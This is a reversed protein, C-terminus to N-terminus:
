IKVWQRSEASEEVAEMVRQNRMGDEFTPQVSKGDVVANVFDALTHVFTHEYGLIHGPPWWQGVFPHDGGPQTVLIDSFGQRDSAVTNDFWKLRNMDEFDFYLSGKSGNIEIVISNKRGLAFRTAELNAVAGNKFKGIFLAADDVTVEGMTKGGAGGLGDGKASSDEIPRQKIFTNMLGCVEDFEGILYRGLDIIHANIDGHAGSGSIGKQLRWVLPFEPDVIWDQAYRARYHFIDGLAGEEIMKRAHAIAPIRRYNHCVMHVVGAENAADVMEKCQAVTMGLPKECLVHKGAKAAAISIEAHSDNPTNIDVIDIEPNNIVEEWSTSINNWGLEKASAELAEKNRGCITHMELDAKLPFFHPAQRWGNSHAKGMFRYGIMGVKLTKSM